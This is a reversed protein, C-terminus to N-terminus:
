IHALYPSGRKMTKPTALFQVGPVCYSAVEPNADLAYKQAAQIQNIFDCNGAGVDMVVGDMPVFPQVYECIARWVRSRNLDPTYRTKFYRSDM